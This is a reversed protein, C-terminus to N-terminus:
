HDELSAVYTDLAALEETFPDQVPPFRFGTKPDLDFAAVRFGIAFRERKWQARCFRLVFTRIDAAFAQANHDYRLALEPWLSQFMELPEQGRQVFHFMLRDLVAFPMLDGEDTQGRDAPRLEATAPTAAVLQLAELGYFDAAWILWDQVLSKPVDSLPAIGGSTDGDMTTYGV